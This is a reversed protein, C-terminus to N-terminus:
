PRRGRSDPLAIVDHGLRRAARALPRDPTALADDEELSAFLVCDALSLEATRRRYLQARLLGARAAGECDLERVALTEQFLSRM